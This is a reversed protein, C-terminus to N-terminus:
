YIIEKFISVKHSYLPRGIVRVRLLEFRGSVEFYNKNGKLNNRYLKVGSLEFWTKLVHCASFFFPTGSYLFGFCQIIKNCVLWTLEKNNSKKDSWKLNLTWGQSTYM